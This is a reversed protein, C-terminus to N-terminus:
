LVGTMWPFLMTSEHSKCLHCGTDMQERNQITNALDLPLNHFIKIHDKSPPYQVSYNINPRLDYQLVQPTM